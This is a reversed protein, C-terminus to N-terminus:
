ADSDGGTQTHKRGEALDDRWPAKPNHKEPGLRDMRVKHALLSAREILWDRGVKRAEIDGRRALRRVYDVSFGTLEAGETTNILESMACDAM